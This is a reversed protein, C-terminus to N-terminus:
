EEVIEYHNFVDERVLHGCNNCKIKINENYDFSEILFKGESFIFTPEKDSKSVDIPKIEDKQKCENCILTFSM